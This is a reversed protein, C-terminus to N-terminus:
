LAAYLICLVQRSSINFVRDALSSSKDESLETGVARM